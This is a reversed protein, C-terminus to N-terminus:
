YNCFNNKVFSELGCVFINETLHYNIEGPYIVFLKDLKLDNIVIHMSKTTKPADLYKFEFGIKKGDKFVFLDLEAEAQTSWFYVDELNLKLYKVVEELAYGEWIAGLKHSILLNQKNKIGLLFNLIGIDRFYIKPAKVQRKSINEFWPSLIRIMFTGALIDLYKKVIADSIMLSRALESFNITQGHYNTLMLWFRRMQMPPINFGLMPIDRELFTTVYNKRWLFSDDENEALYSRPFGGRIILKNSDGVEFLSFSPLEIYGIRGALSESSQRLLERSASGLILFKKNTIDKDVIVRLISFLDPRLQIEDIIILDVDLQCLALMPNDLRALDVPDELDFFIAKNIKNESVFDKALTTKGVQRPGLIACIPNVRFQNSIEDLYRKRLM